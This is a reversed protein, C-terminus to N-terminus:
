YDIANPEEHEFFLWAARNGVRKSLESTVFAETMTERLVGTNSPFTVRISREFVPEDPVGTDTEYVEVIASAVGQWM